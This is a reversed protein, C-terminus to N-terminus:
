KASGKGPSPSCSVAARACHRRTWSRSAWAHTLSVSSGGRGDGCECGTAQGRKCQSRRLLGGCRQRRAVRRHLDPSLHDPTRDVDDAMFGTPMRRRESAGSRTGRSPAPMRSGAGTARVAGGAALRNARSRDASARAARVADRARASARARGTARTRHGRAGASRVCRRALCRRRATRMRHGGAGAARVAARGAARGALRHRCTTTAAAAIMAISAAAVVSRADTAAATLPRGVLRRWKPGSRSVTTSNVSAANRV